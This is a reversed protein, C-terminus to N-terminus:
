RPAEPPAAPADIAQDRWALLYDIREKMVEWILPQCDLLARERARLDSFKERGEAIARSFDLFFGEVFELAERNQAVTAGPANRLTEIMVFTMQELMAQAVSRPVLAARDEPGSLHYFVAVRCAQFRARNERSVSRDPLAVQATAAAAALALAAGLAAARTARM